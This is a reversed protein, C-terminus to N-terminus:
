IVGRSRLAQQTQPDMAVWGSLIEATHEGLAPAPRPPIDPTGTTKIPNGALTVEGWAPDALPQLMSRETAQPSRYVEDVDQVPACPVGRANLHAVAEDQGRGALWREILERLEDAHEHRRIGDRLDDRQLLDDRGIAACFKEWVREGLVAIVVYGDRSRFSGFPAALAHIGSPAPRGSIGYMAISLENLALAGDFLAIDVHQGEGTVARQLLAQLTGAYALTAAYVDALPFGLYAPRDADREPRWMLGGMAQAVIDFAPRDCLSSPLLDTQGFGTISVYVLRPNVHRLTPYDLGLRSLADPRLNELLVDARSALERFVARGSETKLDLTISKKNRNARLFAISRPEGDATPKSPPVSRAQDGGRPPEVKVVEAGADAMLMTAYPGAIFNELALVRLGTLARM